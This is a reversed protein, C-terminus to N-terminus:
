YNWEQVVGAPVEEYLEDFAGGDGGGSNLIGQDNCIIQFGVGSGANTPLLSVNRLAYPIQWDYLLLLLLLLIVSFISECERIIIIWM